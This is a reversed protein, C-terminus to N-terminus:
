LFSGCPEHALVADSAFDKAIVKNLVKAAGSLIFHSEKIFGHCIPSNKLKKKKAQRPFLCLRVVSPQAGTPTRGRQSIIQTLSIFRYMSVTYDVGSPVPPAFVSQNTVSLCLAGRSHSHTLSLCLSTNTHRTRQSATSM